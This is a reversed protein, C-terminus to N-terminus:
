DKVYKIDIYSESVMNNHMILKIKTKIMTQYEHESLEKEKDENIVVSLECISFDSNLNYFNIKNISISSSLQQIQKVVNLKNQNTTLNLM